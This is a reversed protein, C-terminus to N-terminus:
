TPLCETHVHGRWTKPQLSGTPLWWQQQVSWRWDCGGPSARRGWVTLQKM